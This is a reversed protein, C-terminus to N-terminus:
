LVKKSPHLLNRPPREASLGSRSDGDAMNGVQPGEILVEDLAAFGLELGEDGGHTLEQVGDEAHEFVVLGEVARFDVGEEV